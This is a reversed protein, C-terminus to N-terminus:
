AGFVVKTLWIGSVSGVMGGIVYGAIEARTSAERYIRKAIYVGNLLLLGDTLVAPGYLGQACARLNATVILFQVAQLAAIQLAPKM